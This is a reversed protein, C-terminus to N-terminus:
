RTVDCSSPTLQEACAMCLAGDPHSPTVMTGNIPAAWTFPGKATAGQLARCYLFSETHGVALARCSPPSAPSSPCLSPSSPWLADTTGGSLNGARNAYPSVKTGCQAKSGNFSNFVAMYTGQGKAPTPRMTCGDAMSSNQTTVSSSVTAILSVAKACEAENVIRRVLPHRSSYWVRWVGRKMTHRRSALAYKSPCGGETLIASFNKKSRYIRDSCPCEILPSLSSNLNEGSVTGDRGDIAKPLFSPRYGTV